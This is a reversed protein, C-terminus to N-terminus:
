PGHMANVRGTGKVTASLVYTMQVGFKASSHNKLRKPFSLKPIRVGVFTILEM